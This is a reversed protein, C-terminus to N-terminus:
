SGGALSEVRLRMRTLIAQPEVHQYAAAFASASAKFGPEGLLRALLSPLEETSRALDWVLGAGMAQIRLGQLYSELQDPLVLLPTGARLFALATVGGGAWLVGLAAQQAALHIDVPAQCFRLAPGAWRQQDHTSLGPAYVLVPHGLGALQTLVTEHHAGQPRVYAFVKPGAGPPWQPEVGNSASLAGWYRGGPRAGYHDLEPFSLLGTEAVDFLDAVRKLPALQWEALVANIARLAANDRAQLVAPDQTLWPRMGPTPAQPPPVTFGNGYLMVPVGLTRAALIATPAHDALVVQAGSLRILERWAVVLGYLVDPNAYGYHLLIAAYNEPTRGPFQDPVGPAQMWAFGEGKLLRTAEHPRAVAWHVTHGHARLERALPLFAGMHGLNAGLEWAYVVQSM